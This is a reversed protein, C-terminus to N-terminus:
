KVYIFEKYNSIFFNHKIFDALEDRRYYRKRALAYRKILGSEVYENLTPLSVGITKAAKKPSIFELLYTFSANPIEMIGGLLNSKMLDIDNSIDSILLKSQQEVHAIGLKM